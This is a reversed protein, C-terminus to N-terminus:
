GAAGISRIFQAVAARDRETAQPLPSRVAATIPIGTQRLYEKLVAQRPSIASMGIRSLVKFGYKQVSVPLTFSNMVPLFDFIRDQLERAGAHDGETWANYCGAVTRPSIAAVTCMVGDGGHNLTELLLFGSGAFYSLGAENRLSTARKLTPLNMSSDKIGSIRELRLLRSFEDPSPLIGTIQPIHYYMLPKETLQGLESYYRICDDVTIKFYTPLVALYADVAVSKTQKLFLGAERLSCCGVCSIVPIQGGVFHVARRIIELREEFTFYPLEGYSGLVLLGHCGGDIYFRLLKELGKFDVGQDELLPTPVVAYVGSFSKKGSGTKKM